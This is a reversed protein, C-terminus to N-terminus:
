REKELLTLRGVLEAFLILRDYPLSRIADRVEHDTMKKDAADNM